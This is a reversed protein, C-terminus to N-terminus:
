WNLGQYIYNILHYEKGLEDNTDYFYKKSGDPNLETKSQEFLYLLEKRRQRIYNGVDESLTYKSDSCLIYESM